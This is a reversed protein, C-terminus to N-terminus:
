EVKVGLLQSGDQESESGRSTTEGLLEM